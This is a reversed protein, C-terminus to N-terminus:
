SLHSITRKKRAAAAAKKINRRAATRQKSSAMVLRETQLIASRARAKRSRLPEQLDRPQASPGDRSQTKALLTPLRRLRAEQDDLKSALATSCNGNRREPVLAAYAGYRM